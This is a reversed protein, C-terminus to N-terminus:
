DMERNMKKMASTGDKTADTTDEIIEVMEKGAESNKVIWDRQADTMSEFTKKYEKIGGKDYAASLSGLLGRGEEDTVESEQSAKYAELWPIYASAERRQGMRFLLDARFRPQTWKSFQRSYRALQAPKGNHTPM